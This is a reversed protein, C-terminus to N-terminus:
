KGYKEVMEDLARRAEDGGKRMEEVFEPGAKEANELLSKQLAPNHLSSKHKQRYVALRRVYQEYDPIVDTGSFVNIFPAVFSNSLHHWHILGMDIESELGVKVDDIRGRDIFQLQAIAISGRPAADARIGMNWGERFGAWYGALAAAVIAVVGITIAPGARM